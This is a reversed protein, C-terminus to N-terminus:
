HKERNCPLILGGYLKLYMERKFYLHLFSEVDEKLWTSCAIAHYYPIGILDSTKCTCSGLNKDM